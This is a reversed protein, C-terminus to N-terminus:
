VKDHRLERVIQLFPKMLSNENIIKYLEDVHM